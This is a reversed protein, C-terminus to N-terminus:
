QRAVSFVALTGGPVTRADAAVFAIGAGAVLARVPETVFVAGAPVQKLVTLADDIARGSAGDARVECEGVHVVVAVRLHCRAALALLDNAVQVARAPGDFTAVLRGGGSALSRGDGVGTERLAATRFRNEADGPPAEINTAPVVHLALVTALARDKTGCRPLAACFEAIPQLVADQDGVFPLHDDGPLEVLRANPVLAALYRGEDITLCKDGTRHVVLTPVRITPLVARVDIEANMRTLAVAASPSAGHRLYAAWWDRFARDNARSPAREAVGVPGGWQKLIEDCFRERSELTSGWPYGDGRLRRAYSGIMVLGRTREPHTAAFLACMPGGESIGCLVAARSGIEDMVARVDDMRQELTPLRDNAVRDSLGTGRKDFLVVRAFTGLQRLFRAFSPERWFWELHSIWGMVFVLDIPGDGFVQYAINVDGSRAYRVVPAAEAVDANATAAATGDGRLAELQALVAAASPTRQERDKQLALEVVTLFAPPLDPRHDRLSAPPRELLAVLVDLANDGPFAPEGTAMEHLLAGLAWVDARPDVDGGRAQEPAMYRMTGLLLGPQTREPTQTLVASAAKALGFDLVKVLGRRTLILNAGKIDRHVIGQGLAEDLADAVQQAVDVAEKLPMPGKAIRSSLVEGEVYEMAIFLSEGHEVLDYTVAINPSRLLSAARAERVLRARSEEDRQVSPALFKLAVQRGLRTDEALYVEGMGGSGLRQGVRYHLVLKGSLSAAQAMGGMRHNSAGDRM